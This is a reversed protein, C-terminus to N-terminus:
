VTAHKVAVRKSQAPGSRRARCTLGTSKALLVETKAPRMMRFDGRVLWKAHYQASVPTAAHKRAAMSNAWKKKTGAMQCRITDDAISSLDADVDTQTRINQRYRKSTVSLM